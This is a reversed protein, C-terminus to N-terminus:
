RLIVRATESRGETGHFRLFYIGAPLGASPVLTRTESGGTTWRELCQGGASFLEVGRTATGLQVRLENSPVPNTIVTGLADNETTLNIVTSFSSTGDVDTQRVRYYNRGAPPLAHVASYTRVAGSRGAGQETGPVQTLARFQRGDRSTELTYFDHDIEDTVSWELLNEKASLAQGTFSVWTVPLSGDLSNPGVTFGSFGTNFTAEVWVLDGLLGDTLTGYDVDQSAFNAPTVDPVGAGNVKVIVAEALTSGTVAEWNTVEDQTLYYRIRYEGDAPNNTPTVRLARAMVAMTNSTSSFPFTAPGSADRELSITTCGHDFDRLNEVTAYLRGSAEDRFVVTALPGLYVEASPTTTTEVVEASADATLTINDLAWWWDFEGTFRFRIQFDANAYQTVDISQVDPDNFDGVNGSDQDLSYVDVWQVGDWVAVVATEFGGLTYRRFYQEFNVRLNTQGVTNVVPSILREDNTGGQGAADSDFYVLNSGNLTAGRLDTDAQWTEGAIGLNEVTWGNAITGSSWNESLLTATRTPTPLMDDDKLTITLTDNGGVTVQQSGSGRLRLGLTEDGEVNGDDYVRLTFSGTNNFQDLTVTAPVIDYDIGARADGGARLSLTYIGPLDQNATVGIPYESYSRCGGAVTGDIDEGERPDQNSTVQSTAFSVQPPPPAIYSGSVTTTGFGAPDLWDRLRRRPDTAGGGDWSYSIRGYLGRDRAPDSCNLSSGGFLQGVVYKGNTSFIPSGSSGGETVSHGNTTPDWFVELFSGNGPTTGDFSMSVPVMTHTAIKKADGAPHHIGVGNQTLNAAASFGNFYVNYSVNPNETLEFLAVDSEGNNSILTAGASTRTPPTGSNACGPREYDWYFVWTSADPNTIADRGGVCHDATLFYPTGDQAANNLLSGTCLSNGNVTIRAVGRKEDQWDTGEGCNVNVQCNGSDGLGKLLEGMFRYAHGVQGIQLRGRGRVAAPEYYELVTEDGRLIRTAFLGTKTNNRSTFAGAVDGSAPNILHLRSGEPLYFDSYLLTMGLAGPASISLRWLRDGNPLNTWEGEKWGYEVPFPWAFRLPQNYNDEVADEAQIKNYPIAPMVLHGTELPLTLESSVPDIPTSLQAFLPTTGLLLLVALLRLFPTM